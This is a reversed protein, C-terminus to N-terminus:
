NTNSKQFNLVSFTSKQSFSKVVRCRTRDKWFPRERHFAISIANEWLSLENIQMHNYTCMDYLSSLKKLILVYAIKMTNKFFKEYQIINQLLYKTTNQFLFLISSLLCSGYHSIFIKCFYWFHFFISLSYLWYLKWKLVIQLYRWSEM